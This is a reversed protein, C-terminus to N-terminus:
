RPPRASAGRRGLQPTSVATAEIGDDNTDAFPRNAPDGFRHRALRRPPHATNPIGVPHAVETCPRAGAAHSMKTTKNTKNPSTRPELLKHLADLAAAVDLDPDLLAHLLLGDGVAALLTAIAQAPADDFVAGRQQNARVAHVMVQRYQGLMAGMREQLAEDREAEPMAEFMLRSLVPDIAERDGVEAAVLGILDAM